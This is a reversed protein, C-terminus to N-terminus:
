KQQKKAGKTRADSKKECVGPMKMQSLADGYEALGLLHSDLTDRESQLQSCMAELEENSLDNFDFVEPTEGETIFTCAQDRSSRQHGAPPGDGRNGAAKPGAAPHVHSKPEFGKRPASEVQLGMSNNGARSNQKRKPPSPWMRRNQQICVGRSAYMLEPPPTAGIAHLAVHRSTLEIEPVELPECNFNDMYPIDSGFMSETGSGQNQGDELAPLDQCHEESRGAILLEEPPFSARVAQQLEKLLDKCQETVCKFLEAGLRNSSGNDWHSIVLLLNELGMRKLLALMKGGSGPDNDDDSEMHVQGDFPSVIRYAYPWSRVSKFHSSTQLSELVRPVQLPDMVCCVHAQFTSRNPYTRRKGSTMTSMPLAMASDSLLDPKPLWANSDDSERGMLRMRAEQAWGGWRLTSNGRSSQPWDSPWTFPNDTVNGLATQAEEDLSGSELVPVARQLENLLEPSWEEQLSLSM